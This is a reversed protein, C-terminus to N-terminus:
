VGKPLCYLSMIYIPFNSITGRTLTLKGGKIHITKELNSVNEQIKRGSWGVCRHFQPACGVLPGLLNNATVRNQM